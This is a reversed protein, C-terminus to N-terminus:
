GPRLAPLVRRVPAVGGVSRRRKLRAWLIDAFGRQTSRPRLGCAAPTETRWGTGTSTGSHSSVSIAKIVPGDAPLLERCVLDGSFGALEADTWDFRGALSITGGLRGRVLSDTRFRQPIGKQRPAARLDDDYRHASQPSM